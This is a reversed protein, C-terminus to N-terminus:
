EGRYMRYGVHRAPVPGVSTSADLTVVDIQDKYKCLAQDPDEDCPVLPKNCPEDIGEAIQDVIAVRIRGPYQARNYLSEVTERCQFDRYSAIMLFITRRHLPCDEGRVFNGDEDPVACSGIKMAKERSLLKGEHLPPAWFKPVKWKIDSKVPHAIEEFEEDRISVPWVAEPIGSIDVSRPVEDVEIDTERIMELSRGPEGAQHELVDMVTVICVLYAVLVM